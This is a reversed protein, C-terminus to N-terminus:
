DKLQRTTEGAAGAVGSSANGIVEMMDEADKYAGICLYAMQEDTLGAVFEDLSKSGSVVEDWKVSPGAPIEAPVEQYSM